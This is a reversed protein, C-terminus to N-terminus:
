NSKQDKKDDSKDCLSIYKTVKLTYIKNRKKIPKREIKQKKYIKEPMLVGGVRPLGCVTDFVSKAKNGVYAGTISSISHSYGKWQDNCNDLKKFWSTCANTGTEKIACTYGTNRSVLNQITVIKGCFSQEFTNLSYNDRIYLSGSKVYGMAKFEELTKMLVKEGVEFIPKNDQITPTSVISEICEVPLIINSTVRFYGISYRDM